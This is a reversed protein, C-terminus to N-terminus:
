NWREAIFPWIQTWEHHPVEGTGMAIVHLQAQEDFWTEILDTLEDQIDVMKALWTKVDSM